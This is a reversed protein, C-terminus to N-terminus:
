IYKGDSKKVYKIRSRIRESPINTKRSIEEPKMGSTHMSMIYDTLEQSWKIAGSATRRVEPASPEVEYKPAPPLTGMEVRMCYEGYSMGYARAMAATQAISM